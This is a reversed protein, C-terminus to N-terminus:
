VKKGNLSDGNGRLTPQPGPYQPQRHRPKGGKWSANVWTITTKISTPVWIALDSLSREKCPHERIAQFQRVKLHQNRHGSPEGPQNQNVWSPTCTDPVQRPAFSFLDMSPPAHVHMSWPTLSLQVPCRHCHWVFQGWEALKQVYRGTVYTSKPPLNPTPFRYKFTRPGPFLFQTLYQHFLIGHSCKKRKEKLSISANRM